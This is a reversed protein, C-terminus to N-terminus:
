PELDKCAEEAATYRPSDPDLGLATLEEPSIKVYGDAAPEPDPFSPVGNRRMCATWTLVLQLQEARDQPDPAAEDASPAFRACAEKAAAYRATGEAGPSPFSPVGNRRM